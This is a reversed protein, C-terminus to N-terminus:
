SQGPFHPLYIKLSLVANFAEHLYIFYMFNVYNVYNKKFLTINRCQVHIDQGLLYESWYTNWLILM